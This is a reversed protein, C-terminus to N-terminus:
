GAAALDLRRSEQSAPEPLLRLGDALSQIRSHRPQWFGHRQFERFPSSDAGAGLPQAGPRVPGVPQHEPPAPRWMIDKTAPRPRDGFMAAIISLLFAEAKAQTAAFVVFSMGALAAPLATAAVEAIWARADRVPPELVALQTLIPRLLDIPPTAHRGLPRLFNLAELARRRAAVPNGGATELRALGLCADPYHAKALAEGYYRGAETLQGALEYYAALQVFVYAPPGRQALAEAWRRAGEFDRLSLDLRIAFLM